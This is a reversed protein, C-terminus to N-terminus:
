RETMPSRSSVPYAAPAGVAIPAAPADDSTDAIPSIVYRGSEIVAPNADCHDSGCRTSGINITRRTSSVGIAIRLLPRKLGAHPRNAGTLGVTQAALLVGASM